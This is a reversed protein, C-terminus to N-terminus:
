GRPTADQGSRLGSKRWPVVGDIEIELSFSLLTRVLVIIGLALASGLTPDVAITRIIDAVVLIELGLLIAKGLDSRLRSYVHEGRLRRLGDAGFAGIAGIVLIGVGLIEFGQSITDMVHRFDM